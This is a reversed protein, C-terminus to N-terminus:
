AIFYKKIWPELKSSSGKILLQEVVKKEGKNFNYWLCSKLFTEKFSQRNRAPLWVLLNHQFLGSILNFVWRHERQVSNWQLSTWLDQPSDCCIVLTDYDCTKYLDLWRFRCVLLLLKCCSWRWSVLQRVWGRHSRRRGEVKSCTNESVTM